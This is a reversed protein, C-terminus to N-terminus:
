LPARKLGLHMAAVCLPALLRLWPGPLLVLGIIVSAESWTFTNRNHGFRLHLLPLDAVLFAAVAAILRWAEPPPQRTTDVIASAFAFGGLAIVGAILVQLRRQATAPAIRATTSM